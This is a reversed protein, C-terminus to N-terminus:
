KAIERERENKCKARILVAFSKIIGVSKIDKMIIGVNTKREWFCIPVREESCEKSIERENKGKARILVAFTKIMGVSKIEKMTM